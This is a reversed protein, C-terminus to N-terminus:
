MHLTICNYNNNNNCGRLGCPALFRCPSHNQSLLVFMVLVMGLKDHVSQVILEVCCFQLYNIVTGVSVSVIYVNCVCAAQLM